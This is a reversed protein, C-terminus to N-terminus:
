WAPCVIENNLQFRDDISDAGPRYWSLLHSHLSWLSVHLSRFTYFEYRAQKAGKSQNKAVTQHRARFYEHTPCILRPLVVLSARIVCVESPDGRELGREAGM